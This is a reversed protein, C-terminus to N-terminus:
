EVGLTVLVHGDALNRLPDLVAGGRDVAVERALVVDEELEGLFAEPQEAIGRRHGVIRLEGAARLELANAGDEPPKVLEAAVMRLIERQHEDVLRHRADAALVPTERERALALALDDLPNLRADVSAFQRLREVREDRHAREQDAQKADRDKSEAIPERRFFVRIQEGCVDEVQREGSQPGAHRQLRGASQPAREILYRDGIRLRRLESSDTMIRRNM